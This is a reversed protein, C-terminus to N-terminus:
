TETLSETPISQPPVDLPAGPDVVVMRLGEGTELVPPTDRALTMSSADRRFNLFDFGGQSRFSYRFNRPIGVAMGPELRLTGIQVDGRLLYILEDQTHFHSPGKFAADSSNRLLMVRCTPCTSDAYFRSTVVGDRGEYRGVYTGAADTSHVRHGDKRPPGLVGDLPQDSDVSGFHILRATERVDLRAPVGAEVIISANAGVLQGDSEVEGSEVFVVEDGHTDNWHLSAGAQFTAVGAWLSYGSPRILEGSSDGAVTATASPGESRLGSDRFDLLEIAAM